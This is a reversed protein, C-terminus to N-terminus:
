GTAQPLEPAQSSKVALRAAIQHRRRAAAKAARLAGECREVLDEADDGPKAPAVGLRLGVACVTQTEPMRLHLARIQARLRETAIRAAAPDAGPLVVLFRHESWRGLSDQVRLGKRLTQAIQKAAHAPLPGPPMGILEVSALVATLAQPAPADTDTHQHGSARLQHRLLALAHSRNPLGSPRDISRWRSLWLWVKTLFRQYLGGSAAPLFILCALNFLHVGYGLPSSAMTLVEPREIRSDNLLALSGYLGVVLLTTVLRKRQRWVNFAAVLALLASLCAAFETNWGLLVVALVANALTEAGVLPQALRRGWATRAIGWLVLYLLVTGLNAMAMLMAGAQILVGLLAVHTLAALLAAGGLLVNPAPMLPAM